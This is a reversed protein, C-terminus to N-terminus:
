QDIRFGAAFQILGKEEKSNGVLVSLAFRDVFPAIYFGGGYGAHLGGPSAGKVYARGVDYFGVLGYSFPVVSSQVQGLAFRLESNLYTVADGTFRNRVYGRLNQVQGLQPFKYFPIRDDSAGYTTAGGGKLVLTVPIGIRATGYYEAFVETVSFSKKPGGDGVKVQQYTTHQAFFRVGKRAFFARDRFDLNLELRGGLLDQSATNVARALQPITDPGATEGLVSHADFSPTFSEYLAGGRFFSKVLFPRELFAEFRPGKYRARYFRQDYLADNKKTDNGLGFFNYFPYYDGYEALGSFDWEGFIHRYRLTGTIQKNGGSTYRAFLGYSSKFGPKRWGQKDYSFGGGVGFGDNQNYLLTFLPTYGDYEFDQRDYHNVGRRNSRNDSTEGGAKLDTEPVDYVKTYNRLGVVHSDDTIQDQGDGGIIRVMISKPAEGTVQVVDKGALAYLRIEKTEKPHFTRDFYAPGDPQDTDKQKDFVQVRVDGNALREVRFVEAKNSGVVDVFRALMLYYDDAARPLDALRTRLREKMEAGTTAHLETPLRDAARDIVAPTITRQLYHAAEQWQERTISTLLLRDLHRAPWNLSELGHVKHEFSEISPVAWERNATWTLLGNWRTFSQDRDRPIPKYTTQNGEKYGAWRWNDPHKGFDAVLMDFARAKALAPEDVRADHDKYLQRFLGFSRTVDDAGAFGKEQGREADQPRDELTGLMGAFDARYPGLRAPDDPLRWLTPRAHLIDTADLLEGCVLASYPQSTATIDRLINAVVTNRLEPPLAGQLDKDVSRFVYELSDGGVFKLSTTQRGGGKGFPRLGGKTTALDLTPVQVPTTWDKRYLPGILAKKFAGARYEPGPVVTTTQGPQPADKIRPEGPATATGCPFADNPLGEGAVCPARFLTRTFAERPQPSTPQDFTLFTARVTGDASYDLRTFGEADENYLAKRNHGVFAHETLSGSVIQYGGEVPQLQLSYDHASAYVVGPNERFTALLDKAYDDYGPYARDRPSGVNQRYAAYITGFVPLPVWSQDLPFVHRRLPIRGGYIGDSVAPHHGVVLVNRRGRDSIADELQERFEEKSLTKCDTDPEEPKDWPHTFWASNIAVLRVTPALDIIEPGPCGKGPLVVDAQPSKQKCYDELRRVAKLGDPGSNAWDKDGPVLLLRGQPLGEVLGLLADLRATTTADPTKPLGDNTVVDGLHIVTFPTTTLRLTQRLPDLRTESLPTTATNGILYVTHAPAQATLGLPILLWLAVVALSRFTSVLM